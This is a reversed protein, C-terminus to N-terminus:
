YNAKAAEPGAAPAAQQFNLQSADIMGAAKQEETCTSPCEVSYSIHQNVRAPEKVRVYRVCCPIPPCPEEFVKGVVCKPASAPCSKPACSKTECANNYCKRYGAEAQFALGFIAAALVVLLNKKM